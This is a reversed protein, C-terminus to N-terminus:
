YNRVLFDPPLKLRGENLNETQFDEMCFHGPNKLEIILGLLYM